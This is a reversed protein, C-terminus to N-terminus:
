IHILSLTLGPENKLARSVTGASVGAVQAIDRITVGPKATATNDTDAM